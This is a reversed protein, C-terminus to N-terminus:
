FVGSIESIKANGQIYLCSCLMLFFKLCVYQFYLIYDYFWTNSDSVRFTGFLNGEISTETSPQPKWTITYGNLVFSVILNEENFSVQSSTNYNLQPCLFIEVVTACM